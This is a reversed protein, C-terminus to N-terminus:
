RIVIKQTINGDTVIYLGQPLMVPTLGINSVKRGSIDYVEATGHSTSLLNGNIIFKNIVSDISEVAAVKCSEAKFTIIGDKSEAIDLIDIGVPKNSWSVFAPSGECTFETVNKNGPFSDGSRTAATKKDDAEVLDVYQHNPTNNVTNADWKSQVFDIHWVLMGHGPLYYDNGTKQRNELLYFENTKETPVIFAENTEGLDELSYEGAESLVTPEIWDLAYREFSSFNPPTHSNNNYSGVDLISWNGPTFSNSYDTAYLDPLGMVHSFEHCFSGIGDPLNNSYQLENSCAYHNLRVGDFMYKHFPDAYEIDWSHPWVTNASGGDAEGYGAYFVYVNDIMGDGNRDYESFDIEDDLLQCAEIIMEYARQDNNAGYYSYNNELKVPGYVDFYPQFLGFSNHIFYDRASGTAGYDSFGEENLFRDFFDRPNEISFDKNKYEVLIAISRQEGKSPFTTSFLGPGKAPAKSSETRKIEVAKEVQAKDIRSLYSITAQSRESVKVAKIGSSRLTGSVADYDAFTYFGEEDPILAYGDESYAMRNHFGGTLRVTLTTGDPQEATILGPKAVKADSQLAYTGSFIGLLFVKCLFQLRNTM